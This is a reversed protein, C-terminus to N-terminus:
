CLDLANWQGRESKRCRYVERLAFRISCNDDAAVLDRTMAIGSGLLVAADGTPQTLATLALLEEYACATSGGGGLALDDIEQLATQVNTASTTLNGDFGTATVPVETATQDDTGGIATTLQAVTIYDLPDGVASEDSIFIRDTSQPSPNTTLVTDRISNFLNVTASGNRRIAPTARM